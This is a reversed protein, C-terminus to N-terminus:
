SARTKPILLASLTALIAVPAVLLGISMMGLFALLLLLGGAIWSPVPLGKMTGLFSAVGLGLVVIGWTKM